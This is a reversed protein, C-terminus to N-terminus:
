SGGSCATFAQEYEPSNITAEAIEGGPAAFFRNDHTVLVDGDACVLTVPASVDGDEDTCGRYDGPLTGGDTWLEACAPLQNTAARGTLGEGDARACGAGLLAVSLALLLNAATPVSRGYGRHRAPM